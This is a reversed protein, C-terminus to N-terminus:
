LSVEQYGKQLVASIDRIYCAHREMAEYDWAHIALGLHRAAVAISAHIESHGALGASIRERLSIEAQKTM